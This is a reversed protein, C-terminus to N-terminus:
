RHWQQRWWLRLVTRFIIRSAHLSARLNGSIKNLGAARRRYSVPAELVRLGAQLARGQMEITWGYGRDELRLRELAERRIARFGGLDTYRHGFLIRIVITALWNGFRQHPLLAGPEAAGMTRSGLVLDAEGRAIPEILSRAEAPDESLDAQMFVVVDIGAPLAALAKLCAAGYGREPESVVSAGAARAVAATGDTSGNDAVIVVQYLAPPIARLTRGLVPEENLAPIILAAQM